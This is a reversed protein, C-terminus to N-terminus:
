EEIRVLLKDNERHHLSTDFLKKNKRRKLLMTICPLGIEMVNKVIAIIMISRMQQM